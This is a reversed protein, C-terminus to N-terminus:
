GANGSQYWVVGSSAWDDARQIGNATDTADPGVRGIVTRTLGVSSDFWELIFPPTSGATIVAALDAWSTIDSRIGSRLISGAAIVGSLPDDTFRWDQFQGGTM